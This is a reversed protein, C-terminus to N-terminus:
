LGMREGSLAGWPLFGPFILHFFLIYIHDHAEAAQEVGSYVPWRVTPRLKVEAQPCLEFHSSVDKKIAYLSAARLSDEQFLLLQTPNLRSNHSLFFSM